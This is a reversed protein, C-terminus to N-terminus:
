TQNNCGEGVWGRSLLSAAQFQGYIAPLLMRALQYDKLIINGLETGTPLFIHISNAKLSIIGAGGVWSLLSEAQFPGNPPYSVSLFTPSKPYHSPYGPTALPLSLYSPYNM